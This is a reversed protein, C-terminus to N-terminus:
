DVSEQDLADNFSAIDLRKHTQAQRLTRLTLPDRPFLKRARELIPVATAFDGRSAAIAGLELTAYDDRPDRKLAARFERAAHALDNQNLAITAATTQPEDSLFNLDAARNLRSFAAGPNSPWTRAARDIDRSALWPLALALFAVIGAAVLGALRLRAPWTAFRATAPAEAPRPALGCAM